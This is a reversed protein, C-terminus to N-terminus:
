YNLGANIQLFGLRARSVQGEIAPNRKSKKGPFVPLMEGRRVWHPTIEPDEGHLFIVAKYLERARMISEPQNSRYLVDAWELAANGLKLRLYGAEARNTPVSTPPD